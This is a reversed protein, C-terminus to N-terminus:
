GGGPARRASGKPRSAGDTAPTPGCRRPARRGGGPASCMKWRATGSSLRVSGGLPPAAARNASRRADPLAEERVRGGQTGSWSRGGGGEGFGGIRADRFFVQPGAPPRPPGRLASPEFHRSANERQAREYARRQARKPGKNLGRRGDQPSRPPEQATKSRRFGSFALAHLNKLCTVFMSSNAEQSRRRSGRPGRKPRRRLKNTRGLATKPTKSHEQATESGEQAM